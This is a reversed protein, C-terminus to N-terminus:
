IMSFPWIRKPPEIASSVASAERRSCYRDTYFLPEAYREGDADVDAAGEGVQQRDVRAGVLDLEGLHRGGDVVLRDAEHRREGRGAGIGGVTCARTCPVVVVVLASSSRLIALTPSIVM